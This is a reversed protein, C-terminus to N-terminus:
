PKALHVRFAPMLDFTRISEDKSGSTMLIQKETHWVTINMVKGKHGTFTEILELTNLDYMHIPYDKDKLSGWTGTILVPLPDNNWVEFAYIPAKSTLLHILELTNPDWICLTKDDSSSILKTDYVDKEASIAYKIAVVPRTHKRIRGKETRENIDWIIIHTGCGVAMDNDNLSLCFLNNDHIFTSLCNHSDFDWFKITKDYSGSIITSIIKDEGDVKVEKTIIDLCHIFDSHADITKVLLLKTDDYDFIKIKRDESATIIYLKNKREITRVKYIKDRHGPHEPRANWCPIKYLPEDEFTVNLFADNIYINRDDGVSIICPTPKKSNPLKDIISISNVSGDHCVIKSLM